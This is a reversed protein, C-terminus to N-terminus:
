QQPLKCACTFAVDKNGPRNGGIVPMATPGGFKFSSRFYVEAVIRVRWKWENLTTATLQSSIKYYDSGPSAGHLLGVLDRGKEESVVKIKGDNNEDCQVTIHSTTKELRLGLFQSQARTSITATDDGLSLYAIAEWDAFNSRGNDDIIFGAEESAFLMYKITSTGLLDISGIADNVVFVYLNNGGGEGIRDRSLWRGTVPNYHRLLGIRPKTRLARPLLRSRGM